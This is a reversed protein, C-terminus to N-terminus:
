LSLRFGAPNKVRKKRLVRRENVVGPLLTNPAARLISKTSSPNLDHPFDLLNFACDFGKRRGLKLLKASPKRLEISRMPIPLEFCIDPATAQVLKGLAREGLV